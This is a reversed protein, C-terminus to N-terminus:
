FTRHRINRLMESHLVCYTKDPEVLDGSSNHNMSLFKSRKKMDSCDNEGSPTVLRRVSPFGPYLRRNRLETEDSFMM